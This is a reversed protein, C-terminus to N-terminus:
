ENAQSSFRAPMSQFPQSSTRPPNIPGLKRHPEEGYHHPDIDFAGGTLLLGHMYGVYLEVTETSGYCPLLAPTGGCDWVAHAYDGKLFYVREGPSIADRTHGLDADCSIGILPKM